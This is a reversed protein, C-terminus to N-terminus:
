NANTKTPLTGHEAQGSFPPMESITKAIEGLQKESEADFEEQTAIGKEILLSELAKFRADRVLGLAANPGIRPATVKLYEEITM